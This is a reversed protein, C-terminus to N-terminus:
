ARGTANELNSLRVKLAANEAELERVRAQFEQITHAVDEAPFLQPIHQPCNSDWAEIEFVIAQEPRAEYGDPFLRAVLAPDDIVVRARGWIKIRRKNAYDM